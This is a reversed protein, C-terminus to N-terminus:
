RAAAPVIPLAPAMTVPETVESVLKRRIKAPYDAFNTATFVFAGPGAIVKDRFYGTLDPESGEIALGNVTFGARVLTGRVDEPALGENSRGDGSVDIVKRVCDPVESFLNAAFLLAEGIGTSFLWWRREVQGIEAALALVADDGTMRRWPTVAAQRSSGSWQVVIVAAKATVLAEAVLSDRLAAALGDMQLRYEQPDVSGSVDIALALAVECAPAPSALAGLAAAVLARYQAHKGM